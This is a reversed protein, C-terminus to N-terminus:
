NECFRHTNRGLINPHPDGGEGAENAVPINHVPPITFRLVIGPGIPLRNIGLHCSLSKDHCPVRYTPTKLGKCDEYALQMSFIM